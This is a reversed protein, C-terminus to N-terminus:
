ECTDHSIDHRWEIIVAILFRNRESHECYLRWECM